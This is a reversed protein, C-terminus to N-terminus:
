NAEVFKITAVAAALEKVSPLDANASPDPQKIHDVLFEGEGLKVLCLDRHGFARGPRNTQLARVIQGLAYPGPIVENRVRPM